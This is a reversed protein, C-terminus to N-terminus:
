ILWNLLHKQLMKFDCIHFYITYIYLVYAETQETRRSVVIIPVLRYIVMYNGLVPAVREHVGCPFMGECAHM